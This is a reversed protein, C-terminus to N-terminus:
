LCLLLLPLLLLLDYMCNHNIAVLILPFHCGDCFSAHRALLCTSHAIRHTPMNRVNVRQLGLEMDYLTKKIPDSLVNYAESIKGFLNAAREKSAADAQKDPHYALALKRYAKKIEDPKAQPM